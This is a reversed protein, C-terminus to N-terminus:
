QLTYLYIYICMYIERECIFTDIYYRDLYVTNNKKQFNAADYCTDAACFSSPQKSRRNTLYEFIM